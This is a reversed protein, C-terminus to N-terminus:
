KLLEYQPNETFLSTRMKKLCNLFEHNCQFLIFFFVFIFSTLLKISNSFFHFLFFHRDFFFYCHFSSARFTWISSPKFVVLLSKSFTRTKSSGYVVLTTVLAFGVALVANGEMGKCKDVVGDQFPGIKPSKSSWLQIQKRIWIPHM